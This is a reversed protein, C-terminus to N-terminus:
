FLRSPILKETQHSTFIYHLRKELPQHTKKIGTVLIYWPRNPGSEIPFQQKTSVQGYFSVACAKLLTRM